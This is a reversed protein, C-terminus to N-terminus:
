PISAHAEPLYLFPSAAKYSTSINKIVSFVKTLDYHKKRSKAIM